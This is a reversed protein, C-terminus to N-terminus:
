RTDRLLCPFDLKGVLDPGAGTPNGKGDTFLRVQCLGALKVQRILPTTSGFTGIRTFAAATSGVTPFSANRTGFRWIRHSPPPTRTLKADGDTTLTGFAVEEPRDPVFKAM